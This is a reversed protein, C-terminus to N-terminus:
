SPTSSIPTVAGNVAITFNCTGAGGVSTSVERGLIVGQGRFGAHSDADIYLIIDVETGNTFATHLDSQAQDTPDYFGTFRLENDKFGALYEKDTDQFATVDIRDANSTLTWESMAAVLTVSGNDIYVAGERGATIAM